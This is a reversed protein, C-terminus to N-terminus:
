GRGGFRFREKGELDIAIVQHAATDSVYLLRNVKNYVIGTPRQLKFPTLKQLTEEATKYRYIQGEGSDTIFIAGNNDGTIGIPTKFAIGDGEIASYRGTASDFLHVIGAGVDVVFLRQTDDSYIGYPKVIDTANEGAIFGWVRKWFGQNLGMDQYNRIEKIWQIKPEMPLAPWQLEHDPIVPQTTRSPACACLILIIIGLVSRTFLKM